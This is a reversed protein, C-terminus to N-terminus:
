GFTHQSTAARAALGHLLPLSGWTTKGTMLDCAVLAFVALSVCLYFAM